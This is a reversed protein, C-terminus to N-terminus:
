QNINCRQMDEATMVAKFECTTKVDSPLPFTKGSIPPPEKYSTKPSSPAPQLAPSTDSGQHKPTFLDKCTNKTVENEYLFNGHTDYLTHIIRFGSDIFRLMSPTTCNQKNQLPAVYENGWAKLWQDVTGYRKLANKILQDTSISAQKASNGIVKDFDFSYKYLITKQPAVLISTLSTANDLQKPLNKTLPELEKKLQEETIVAFSYAPLSSILILIAAPIKKM